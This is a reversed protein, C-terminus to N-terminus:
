HTTSRGWSRRGHLRAPLTTAITENVFVGFDIDGAFPDDDGIAADASTASLSFGGGHVRLGPYIVFLTMRADVLM